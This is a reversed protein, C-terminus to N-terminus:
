DATAPETGPEPGPPPGPEADREQDREQDAIRRRAMSFGQMIVPSIMFIVLAAVADLVFHNATVVIVVLTALPYLVGLTRMLRTRALLALVVGVWLAWGFHMSPMAAYQNSLSVVAESPTYGWLEFKVATDVYGGSTMLRPPALPYLWYGALAIMTMVLLVGRAQAYHTPRRRYLWVMVTATIIMHLTAYYYISPIALWPRDSVFLNLSKEVDLGIVTEADLIARANRQAEGAQDPALNRIGSYALYVSGMLILERLWHPRDSRLLRAGRLLSARRSEDALSDASTGGASAAVVSRAGRSPDGSSPGEPSRDDSSLVGSTGSDEVQSRTSGGPRAAGLSGGLDDAPAVRSAMVMHFWDAGGRNTM